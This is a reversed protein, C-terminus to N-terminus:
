SELMQVADFLIVVIIAWVIMNGFNLPVGENKEGVFSLSSEDLSTICGSDSSDDDDDDDDYSTSQILGDHCKMRKENNSNEDERVEEALLYSPVKSDIREWEIVDLGVEHFDAGSMALAELSITM